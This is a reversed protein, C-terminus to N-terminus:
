INCYHSPRVFLPILPCKIGTHNASVYRSLHCLGHSGSVLLHAMTTASPVYWPELSISRPLADMFADMLKEARRGCTTCPVLVPITRKFSSLLGPLPFQSAPFRKRKPYSCRHSRRNYFDTACVITSVPMLTIFQRRLVTYLTPHQNDYLTMRCIIDDPYTVIPVTCTSYRPRKAALREPVVRRIHPRTRGSIRDAGFYKLSSMDRTFKQCTTCRSPGDIGRKAIDRALICLDTYPLRYGPYCSLCQARNTDCNRDSDHISNPLYSDRKMCSKGDLIM